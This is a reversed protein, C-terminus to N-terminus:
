ANASDKRKGSWRQALLRINAFLILVIVLVHTSSQAYM